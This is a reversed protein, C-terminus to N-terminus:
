RTPFGVLFCKLLEDTEIFEIEKETFLNFVVKSENAALICGGLDRADIGIFDSEEFKVANFKFNATVFKKALDPATFVPFVTEGLENLVEPLEKPKVKDDDLIWLWDDCNEFEKFVEYFDQLKQAEALLRENKISKLMGNFRYFRDQKFIVSNESGINFAIYSLNSFDKAFLVEGPLISFLRLATEDLKNTSRAYSEEDTFVVAYQENNEDTFITLKPNTIPDTVPCRWLNYECIKRVFEIEEIANTKSQRLIFNIEDSYNSNVTSFTTQNPLKHLKAIRNLEAIMKSEFMVANDSFPNVNIATLGSFDYDFVNEGSLVLHSDVSFPTNNEFLKLAEPSTFFCVGNVDPNGTPFVTFSKPDGALAKARQVPIIWYQFEMFSRCLDLFSLRGALHLRIDDNIKDIAPQISNEVPNATEFQKTESGKIKVFNISKEFEVASVTNLNEENALYLKGDKAERWEASNEASLIEINEDLVVYQSGDSNGIQWTEGFYRQYFKALYDNEFAQLTSSPVKLYLSETPQYSSPPLGLQIILGTKITLKFVQLKSFTFLKDIKSWESDGQRFIYDEGSIEDNKMMELVQNEEFPGFQQGNKNIFIQM